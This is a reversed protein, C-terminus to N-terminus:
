LCSAQLAFGASDGTTWGYKGAQEEYVPHAATPTDNDAIVEVEQTDRERPLLVYAGARELMPVLYPLVYSQTYLDEVIQFIRARQWEWRNLKPEFYYGHSQWMAIHRGALGATPEYPVDARIVM